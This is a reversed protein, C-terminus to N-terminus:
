EERDVTIVASGGASVTPRYPAGPIEFPLDVPARVDVEVTDGTVRVTHTLGPFRRSASVARLYDAVAARASAAGQDLREGSLGEDYVDDTQTGGDAGALAAGDALTDLGQRQLYAASADVVVAMGMLLAIAFGVILISTQGREDRRRDRGGRRTTM